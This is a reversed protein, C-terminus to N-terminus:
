AAPLVRIRKRAPRRIARARDIVESRGELKDLVLSGLALWTPTDMPRRANEWRSITEPTVGLLEALDKAQMGVARRAFSASQPGPPGATIARVIAKEWLGIDVSRFYTEGCKRCRDAPVDGSFTREDLTMSQRESVRDFGTSGCRICRM